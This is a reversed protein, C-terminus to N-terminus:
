IVLLHNAKESKNKRLTWITIRYCPSHLHSDEKLFFNPWANFLNTFIYFLSVRRVLNTKPFSKLTKSKIELITFILLYLECLCFSKSIRLKSLIFTDQSFLKLFAVLCHVTHISHVTSYEGVNLHSLATVRVCVSTGLVSVFPHQYM